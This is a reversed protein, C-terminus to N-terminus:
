KNSNMIKRKVTSQERKEKKSASRARGDAWKRIADIKESMTKSLPIINEAAAVIYETSIDKGDEFAAFMAEGVSGDIEAGSFDKTAEAIKVLDFKEPNRKNKKIVVAAIKEREEQTPLDIAFVEDFRGKRLFEPPLSEVQNATMIVFVPTKRDQMWSLISGFVRRTVGSDNSGSGSSGSLGKDVEDIWLCCPSMAEALKLTERTRSESEGVLSNFLSGVDLKLSPIGLATGICRASLSKGTGPVGVLLVGKPTPLGFKEAEVSYAKKRQLIWEKLNDLGGVADLGNPDPDVIELLGGRKVAAIKERYVVDPSFGETEVLSLALANEAESTSLGSLARLLQETIKIEKKGSKATEKAIAELTKKDPLTYDLVTIHKEITSWPTFDPGVLCVCSGKAPSSLLVDKFTRAITPDYAWQQQHADILIYVTDELNKDYMWKLAPLMAETDEEKREDSDRVLGTNANWTYVTKGLKKAVFIVDEVARQEESTKIWVCPYAASFYNSLATQTDKIDM